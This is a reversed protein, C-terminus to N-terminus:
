VCKTALKSLGGVVGYLCLTSIKSSRGEVQEGIWEGCM